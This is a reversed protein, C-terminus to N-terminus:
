SRDGRKKFIFVTLFLVVAAIIFLLGIYVLDSNLWGEEDDKEDPDEGPVYQASVKQIAINGATDTASVTYNNWGDGATDVTLLVNFNNDVVPYIEGRVTVFLITAVSDTVTGNVYMVLSSIEAQPVNTLTLTPKVDDFVFSITYIAINEAKDSAIVEILDDETALNLTHVFSGDEEVNVTEGAVTVTDADTNVMGRVELSAENTLIFDPNDVVLEPPITDRTVNITRTAVNMVLDTATVIITNLGEALPVDKNFVGSHAVELGNIRIIVGEPDDGIHGVVEVSPENVFSNQPPNDIFLSPPTTDLTVKRIESRVNEAADKATVIIHQLGEELVLVTEFIGEDDATVSTSSKVDDGVVQEITVLTGAESLGDVTLIRTSTVLDDLPTYVYLTPAYTDLTVTRLVVATNGAKDTATVTVTNVGETLTVPNNIVGTTTSIPEGNVNVVIESIESVGDQYTGQVVLTLVRTVDGDEPYIVELEPIIADIFFSITTNAINGSVDIAEFFVTHQGQEMGPFMATWQQEPDVAVGEGGDLYGMFSSISSGTEFLFGEVIMDVMNSMADMSPSTVVVDPVVSDVILLHVSDAGVQEGIASISHHATLGGALITGTYPSWADMKGEISSWPMVLIPGIRGMMDTELAGYYNGNSGLMALTAGVAPEGSDIGMADAWTILIELHNYVYIYGRGETRGSAEPITSWYVDIRCDAAFLAVQFNTFTCDTFVADIDVLGWATMGNPGGGDYAEGQYNLTVRPFVSPYDIADLYTGYASGYVKNNNMVPFQGFDVIKISYDNGNYEFVNNRLTITQGSNTYTYWADAWQAQIDVAGGKNYSYNNSEVVYSLPGRMQASTQPTDYDYVYPATLIHRILPGTNNTGSNRKVVIRYTSFDVWLTAPGDNGRFDNGDVTFTYGYSYSNSSFPRYFNICNGVNDIFTNRKVSLDYRLGNFVVLGGNLASSAVNGTLTNRDFSFGYNGWYSAGRFFIMTGDASNSTFMNDEFKLEGYTYFTYILYGTGAANRALNNQTFTVRQRNNEFWFLPGENDSLDCTSVEVDGWSLRTQMMYSGFHSNAIVNGGFVVKDNTDQFLLLGEAMYVTDFTNESFTVKDGTGSFYILPEYVEDKQTIDTFTNWQFYIRDASYTIYFLRWVDIMSFSNNWFIGEGAPSNIYILDTNYTEMMKINSFTNFRISYDSDGSSYQLIRRTVLNEFTCDYLEWEGYRPMYIVLGYSSGKVTIDHVKTVSDSPRSGSYDSLYLAYNDYYTMPEEAVGGSTSKSGFGSFTLGSIELPASGGGNIASYIYQQRNNVYVYGMQTANYIAGHFTESISLGIDKIEKCRTSGELYIARTWFYQRIYVYSSDYYNHLAIDIDITISFEKGADINLRGIDASYAYIGYTYADGYYTSANYTYDGDITVTLDINHLSATGYRIYMGYTSMGGAYGETSVDVSSNGIHLYADYSYIGYNGNIEISSDEVFLYGYNWVAYDVDEIQAGDLFAAGDIAFYWDEHGATARVIAPNSTENIYLTAGWEVWIGNWGAYMNDFTLTCGNLSLTYPSLVDLWSDLRINEGTAVTDQAIVWPSGPPPIPTGTVTAESDDAVAVVALLAIAAVVLLLFAGRYRGRYM